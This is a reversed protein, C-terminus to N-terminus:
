RIQKLHLVLVDEQMRVIVFSKRALWYSQFKFITFFVFFERISLKSVNRLANQILGEDVSFRSLFLHM